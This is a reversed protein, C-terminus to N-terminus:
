QPERGSSTSTIASAIFPLGATPWYLLAYFPPNRYGVLMGWDWGLLQGQYPGLFDYDYMRAPEEDRILRAASYFAIHDVGIPTGEADVPRGQKWVGYGISGFWVIWAVAGVPWAIWLRQRLWSATAAYTM